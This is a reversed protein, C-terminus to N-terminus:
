KSPSVMLIVGLGGQQGCPKVPVEPVCKECFCVACWLKLPTPCGGPFSTVHNHRCEGRRELQSRYIM